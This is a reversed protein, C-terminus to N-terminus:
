YTAMTVYTFCLTISCIVHPHERYTLPRHESLHTQQTKLFHFIVFSEFQNNLWITFHEKCIHQQTFCDKLSFNFISPELIKGPVGVRPSNLRLLQRPLSMNKSQLSIWYCNYTESRCRSTISLTFNANFKVLKVTNQESAFGTFWFCCHLTCSNM